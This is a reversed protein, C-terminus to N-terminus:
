HGILFICCVDREKFIGSIIQRNVNEDAGAFRLTCPVYVEWAYMQIADTLLAKM